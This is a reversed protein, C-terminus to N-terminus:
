NLGHVLICYEVLKGDMEEVVAAAALREIKKMLELAGLEERLERFEDAPWDQVLAEFRETVMEAATTATTALDAYQRSILELTTHYHLHAPNEFHRQQIM